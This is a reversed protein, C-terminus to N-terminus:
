IREAPGGLKFGNSSCFEDFDKSFAEIVSKLWTQVQLEANKLYEDIDAEVAKRSKPAAKNYAIKFAIASLIITVLGSVIAGLGLTPIFVTAAVASGTVFTIGGAILGQKLMPNTSYEVIDPDLEIKHELQAAWDNIRKRFDAEFFKNQLEVDAKKLEKRAQGMLYNLLTDLLLESKYVVEKPIHVKLFDKKQAVDFDAGLHVKLDNKLKVFEDEIDKEISEYIM